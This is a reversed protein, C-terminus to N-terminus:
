DCAILPTFCDAYTKIGDSQSIVKKAVALWLKKRLAPDAEPRDAIISALDIEDHQLALDVAQLYQGMSSYIHVYSQVRKHQICLRLAFDADYHHDPLHSQSELYALLASEDPSHHSAYISILTNHIASDESQLQNIVYM